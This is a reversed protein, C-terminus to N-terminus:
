LLSELTLDDMGEFIPSRLFVNSLLDNDNPSGSRAVINGMVQGIM